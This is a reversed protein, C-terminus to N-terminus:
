VSRISGGDCRLKSGTIYSAPTSCLFCAVAAYESVEGYRGMPISAQSAARIDDVSKGQKKANAEDIQRTRATDVRGPLLMNCTVGQAAVETALSKTWGVLASRLTNSMALNPIPQEVGSSALTLIRGWGREVMTPLLRNTLDIISGIMAQTQAMVQEGTIDRATGPPPGGCNNVLIDVGGRRATVAEAIKRASDPDALDAEIYDVEGGTEAAIQYAVDQLKSADRGTITFVAGEASLATAVGRGLGQSSALVLARKNRLGLDM